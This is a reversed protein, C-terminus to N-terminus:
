SRGTGMLGAMRLATTIVRGPDTFPLVPWSTREERPSAVPRAVPIVKEIPEALRAAVPWRNRGRDATPRARDPGANAAEAQVAEAQVPSAAATRATHRAAVRGAAQELGWFALIGHTSSVGIDLMYAGAVGCQGEGEGAHLPVGHALGAIRHSAVLVTGDAGHWARAAHPGSQREFGPAADSLGHLHLWQKLSEEANGPHVTTDAEGHWVAVRPWPGAHPSAARVAAARAAASLPTPRAMTRLAEPVGSAAGYPLGAVIAGAAFVEPYTALMTATMAGGASLGTVFVRSPDLGHERIMWAVMERISLAEGAGRATDGPEFWNFCLHANNARSQELLLLAFGLKDAMASWGSGQDYSAATQTCGHLAVVLPAGAALGDPVHALMRLGGPDSGFGTVEVLRGDGGPRRASAEAASRRQRQLRLLASLDLRHNTM